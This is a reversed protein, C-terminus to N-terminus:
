FVAGHGTFQFIISFLLGGGDACGLTKGLEKAILHHLVGPEATAIDDGAFWLARRDSFPSFM